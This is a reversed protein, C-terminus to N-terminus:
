AAPTEVGHSDRKAPPVDQEGDPRPEQSIGALPTDPDSTRLWEVLGGVVDSCGGCGTTARTSAAVDAVTRAGQAYCAVIAGKTVGNCRCVTMSSPMNTPSGAAPATPGVPRLLLHAPDAPVPTGRTYAITLDAAVSGAGVCTAGVLRGDRVVVEVLRQADSDTLRIVRDAPDHPHAASQGMAVLDLGPGKVRVVDTGADAQPTPPPTSRDAGAGAVLAVALRRAQDWGQAVLGTGGEPPQACDGIAFVRPDGPSALDGGVAIGREVPLGAAAALGVEALTGCSLVVLDGPVVRGDALRMGQVRGRDLVVESPRAALLSAVGADALRRVLVHSSAVDLQREMLAAEPHIVTTPLGRGALGTAAEVGLVGGGVVVAARATRAAAVIADADDLTRLVHLGAPPEDGPALGTLAPVRARAGTALVLVDYRHHSGDSGRVIRKARDVHLAAVGPLVTVPARDPRDMAPLALSSRSLRGAVLDSLLVRNYPRHSEAGLVTIDFTAVEDRDRLEETFRAGVMGFGVVVVKIRRDM